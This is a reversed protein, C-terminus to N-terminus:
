GNSTSPVNYRWSFSPDMKEARRRESIVPPPFTMQSDFCPLLLAFASPTM